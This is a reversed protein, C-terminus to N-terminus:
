ADRTEVITDSWKWCNRPSKRGMTNLIHGGSEKQARYVMNRGFGEDEGAKIIEKVKMGEANNRLLDELWERCEDLRTPERYAQLAKVDWKIFVGALHLPAFSFGLAPPYRGISNKLMKFERPGNPDFEQRTQVVRVGIISRAQQTIYGTGSLDEM